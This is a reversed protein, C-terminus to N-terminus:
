FLASRIRPISVKPLRETRSNAELDLGPGTVLRSDLHDLFCRPFHFHFPIWAAARPLFVPFPFTCKDVVQYLSQRRNAPVKKYTGYFPKEPTPYRPKFDDQIKLKLDVKAFTM